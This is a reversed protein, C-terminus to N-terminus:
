ASEFRYTYGVALALAIAIWILISKLAHSFRGRLLGLLIVATVALIGSRSPWRHPTSAPSAHHQEAGSLHVPLAILGIALLFWLLSRM